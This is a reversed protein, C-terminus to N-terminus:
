RRGGRALWRRLRILPGVRRHYVTRMVYRDLRQLGREDAEVQAPRGPGNRYRLTAELDDSEILAVYFATDGTADIPELRRVARVAPQRLLDDYHPGHLWTEFEPDRPARYTVVIHGRRGRLAEAEDSAADPRPEAAICEVVNDLFTTASGNLYRAILVNVMPATAGYADLELEFSLRTGNGAAVTAFRGRGGFPENLAKLDFVVDDPDNWRSVNVDLELLRSFPGSEGRVQWWFSNENREVHREYGPLLPAWNDLKRVFAWVNERDARVEADRRVAPM